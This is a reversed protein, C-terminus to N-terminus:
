KKLQATYQETFYVTRLGIPEFKAYLEPAKVGLAATKGESNRVFWDYLRKNYDNVTIWVKPYAATAEVMKPLAYKGMVYTGRAKPNIYSRTLVLATDETYENWGTSAVFSDDDELIIYYTGKGEKYRGENLIYFLNSNVHAFDPSYNERLNLDDVKGIGKKLIDALRTDSLDHIEYVKM